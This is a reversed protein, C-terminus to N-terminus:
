ISRCQSKCIRIRLQPLIKVIFYCWCHDFDQQPIGPYEPPELIIGLVDQTKWSDNVSYETHGLTTGVIHLRQSSCTLIGPYEPHGPITGLTYISGKFGPISLIWSYEPYDWTYSARSDQFVLCGLGLFLSGKFGLFSPIHTQPLCHLLSFRLNSTSSLSRANAVDANTASSSELVPLTWASCGVERHILIGLCCFHLHPSLHQCHQPNPVM